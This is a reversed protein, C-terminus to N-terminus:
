RGARGECSIRPTLGVPPLRLVGRPRTIAVRPAILEQKDSSSLFATRHDAMLGCEVTGKWSDGKGEESGQESKVV